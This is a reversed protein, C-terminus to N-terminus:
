GLAAAMGDIVPDDGYGLASAVVLVLAFLIAALILGVLWAPVSPLHKAM